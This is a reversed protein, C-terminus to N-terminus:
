KTTIVERRWRELWQERVSGVYGWDVPIMKTRSEAGAATRALVEPTVKANKNTPAYFMTSAFSEQAEPSIAYNIFVQAANPNKAGKVLDITDIQFVSGEQPLLVGLKGESRNAYMQSQANWGTGIRAAGSLLVTYGDPRPAWTQVLPALEKLKQIAPDISQKYNAGQLHNIVITFALGQINPPANVIVQGSNKPDWLDNWSKPASPLLDKRYIITIHDFTLAPGYKDNPRANDYLDKLHPVAAPDLEAFLEEAIAIRSLAVDMLAVDLQPNDKQARLAGLRESSLQTPVYNVKISPYKRMFPEVVAKTFNDQYIAAYGAVNVEGSANSTSQAGAPTAVLSAVVVLTGVSRIMSPAM